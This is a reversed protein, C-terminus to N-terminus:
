IAEFIDNDDYEDLMSQLLQVQEQLRQIELLACDHHEKWCDDYHVLPRASLWELHNNTSM